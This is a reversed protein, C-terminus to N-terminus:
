DIILKFIRNETDTSIVIIYTGQATLTEKINYIKNGSKKITKILRGAGDYIKVNLDQVKDLSANINFYEGSKTPNPYIVIGKGISKYVNLKDTKICGEKTVIKVTYEGTQYLKVKPQNSSFGNNSTWSYTASKDLINKSADLEVYDGDKIERDVGLDVNIDNFNNVSFSLTSKLKEADTVEINYNGISLNNLYIKGDNSVIDKQMSTGNFISIVYPAKGGNLSLNLEGSSNKCNPQILQHTALMKQGLAFTFIDTGSLDKDFEINKFHAFGKEDIYDAAVAVVDANNFDNKGSKDILLWLKKDQPVKVIDAIKFVVENKLVESTESTYRIKWKRKLLQFGFDLKELKLSDNNNGWVLFTQDNLVADNLNNTKEFQKAAIILRENESTSSAQKQFLASYDDRAIAAVNNSFEKYDENKWVKVSKSSLYEKYPNTIAYKIALYTNVRDIENQDLIRRYIFFEPLKGKFPKWKNNIDKGVYLKSLSSNGQIDKINSSPFDFKSYMAFSVITDLKKTEIYNIQENNNRLLNLSSYSLDKEGSKETTFLATENYTDFNQYVSFLNVKDLNEFVYPVQLFNDKGDFLLTENYNILSYSPKNLNNLVSIQHLNGSFDSYSSSNFNKIDTKLWISVGTVGGPNQPFFCISFLIFFLIYKSKM